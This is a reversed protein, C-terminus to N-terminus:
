RRRGAAAGQGPDRGAMEYIQGILRATDDPMLRGEEEQRRQAGRVKFTVPLGAILFLDSAKTELAQRLIEMMEM